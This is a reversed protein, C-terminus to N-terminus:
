CYTVSRFFFFRMPHPKCLCRCSEEAGNATWARPQSWAGPRPRHCCGRQADRHPPDPYARRVYPYVVQGEHCNLTPISRWAGSTPTAPCRTGTPVRHLETMGMSLQCTKLVDPHIFQDVTRSTALCDM